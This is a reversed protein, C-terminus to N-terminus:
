LAALKEPALISCVKTIMGDGDLVLAFVAETAERPKGPALELVLMPAGNLTRIAVSRPNGRHRVLGAHLRAVKRRGHVLKPSASYVGGGDSYSIVDERLMSEITELDQAALATVFRQLIAAAREETPAGRDADYPEMSKRARHLTTKVNSTSLELAAATEKVSYDFVDRLLLVARQTPTLEELAILFALSVSELLDYRGHADAIAAPEHPPPDDIEVPGPLWPGTYGRRKRRRLLDRALNMAVRTLWPRWSTDTRKPPRELARTFTEAVIEDADAAVGTMRYCLGWLYRRSTAWADELPTPHASEHEM